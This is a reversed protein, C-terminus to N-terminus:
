RDLTELYKKVTNKSLGLRRAIKKIGVGDWKMLRVQQCKYM